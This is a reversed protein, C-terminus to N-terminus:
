LSTFADINTYIALMAAIPCVGRTTLSPTHFRNAHLNNVLNSPKLKFFLEISETPHSCTTKLTSINM